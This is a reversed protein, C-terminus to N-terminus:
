SVAEHLENHTVVRQTAEITDSADAGSSRSLPNVASCHLLMDVGLWGHDEGVLDVSEALIHLRRGSVGLVLARAFEILKSRGQVTEHAGDFSAM